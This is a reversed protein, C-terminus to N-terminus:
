GLGRDVMWDQFESISDLLATMDLEFGNGLDRKIQVQVRRISSILDTAGCYAAAGHIAHLLKRLEEQDSSQAAAKLESQYQPLRMYLTKLSWHWLAENGSAYKIGQVEDVVLPNEEGNEAQSEASPPIEVQSTSNQTLVSLLREQAVPKILLDDFGSAIVGSIADETADATIAVIRDINIGVLVALGKNEAVARITRGIKTRKLLM